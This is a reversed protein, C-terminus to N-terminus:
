SMTCYTFVCECDSRKYVVAHLMYRYLSIHYRRVTRGDIERTSLDFVTSLAAAFAGFLPPYRCFYLMYYMLIWMKLTLSHLQSMLLARPHICYLIAMSLSLMSFVARGFRSFWEKMFALQYFLKGTFALGYVSWKYKILGHICVKRLRICHCRASVSKM